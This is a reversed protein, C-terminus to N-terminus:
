LEGRAKQWRLKAVLYDYYSSMLNNQATQLSYETNLVDSYLVAGQQFRLQYIGVLDKAQAYNQKAYQMNAYANSLAVYSSQLEYQIDMRLKEITNQSMQSRLIYESKTKAKLFGDFIPVNVQLGLYNYPYWTTGDFFKFDRSLQQVSYNAYFQVTPLYSNNQKRINLQHSSINLKEKKIEVREVDTTTALVPAGDQNAVDLRDTLVLKKDLTLGLQNLLNYKSLEFNASDKQLVITTNQLDLNSRDLDSKILNNNDFKQKASAYNVRNRQWNSKSMAYKEQNLLVDCYAQAILLKVDIASQELAMKQSESGVKSIQRDMHNGPDYINQKLNLSFNNNYPLGFKVARDPPNPFQPTAFASGPLINTQLTTWYRFDATGTIQPLNKTTLKKTENDAIAMQLHQNKLDLRNQLGMDMAKQLSLELTEAQQAFGCGAYLFCMSFLLLKNKM